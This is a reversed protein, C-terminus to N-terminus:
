KNMIVSGPVEENDEERTEPRVERQVDLGPGGSPQDEVHGASSGDGQQREVHGVALDPHGEPLVSDDLVLLPAVVPVPV